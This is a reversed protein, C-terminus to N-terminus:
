DERPSEILSELKKVHRELILGVGLFEDGGNDPDISSFLHALALLETKIPWLEDRIAKLRASNSKPQKM